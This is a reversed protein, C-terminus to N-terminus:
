QPPRLGAAVVIKGFMQIMGRIIKDYEEPTTPGPEFAMAAMQQKVEPAELVVAVDKAIKNLVTRPTGAPALLGHTADREFGPLVESLVPVDPLLPNRNKSLVALARVRGDKIMGLAPGLGPFGYHVRGAIIELLM